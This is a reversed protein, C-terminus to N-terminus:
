QWARCEIAEGLILEIIEIGSSGALVGREIVEVEMELDWKSRALTQM